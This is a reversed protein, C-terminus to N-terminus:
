FCYTIFYNCLNFIFRILITGRGGEGRRPEVHGDSGASEASRPTGRPGEKKRGKAVREGSDVGGSPFARPPLFVFRCTLRTAVGGRSCWPTYRGCWDALRSLLAETAVLDEPEVIVDPALARADTLAMGSSLGVAEAAADVATLLRRGRCDATLVFPRDSSVSDDRRRM